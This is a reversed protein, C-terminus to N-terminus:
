LLGGGERGWLGHEAGVHGLGTPATVELQIHTEEIHTLWLHIGGGRGAIGAAGVCGSGVSLEGPSSTAAEVPKSVCTHLHQSARGGREKQYRLVM